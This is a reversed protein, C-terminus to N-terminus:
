LGDWLRNVGVLYNKKLKPGLAVVKIMGASTKGVRTRAKAWPVLAAKPFIPAM